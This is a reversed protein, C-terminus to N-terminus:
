WYYRCEISVYQFGIVITIGMKPTIRDGFLRYVSVTYSRISTHICILNFFHLFSLYFLVQEIACYRTVCINHIVM